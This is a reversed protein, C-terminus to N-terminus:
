HSYKKLRSLISNKGSVNDNMSNMYDNTKSKRFNKEDDSNNPNGMRSCIWDSNCIELILCKKKVMRKTRKVKVIELWSNSENKIKIVDLTTTIKKTWLRKWGYYNKKKKRERMWIHSWIAKRKELSDRAIFTTHKGTMFTTDKKSPEMNVPTLLKKKEMLKWSCSKKKRDTM